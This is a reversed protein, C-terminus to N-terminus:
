RAIRLTTLSRAIGGFAEALAAGDAADFYYSPNTACDRLLEKVAPDSVAFAITYIKIHEKENAGSNKINTCLEATLNNGPTSDVTGASSDYTSVHEPYTPKMTNKGDTMLVIAKVLGKKSMQSYAKGSNLPAPKSLMRWAWMLGAPIYTDYAGTMADIESDITSKNDTLEMIPRACHTNMLGTVRVNPNRDEVNLPYNRSGVCGYWKTETFSEYQGIVEYDYDCGWYTYTSSVGDNTTTGTRNGCNKESGPVVGYQDVMGNSVKTDAPVDIWPANRNGMGVNVYNSFPVLGVRLDTGSGKKDFLETILDHAASKLSALKGSDNMSGTNDLALVLELNGFDRAVVSKAKIKLKSSGVLNMFSTKYKGKAVVKLRTDGQQNIKVHITGLDIDLVGNKILYSEVLQKLEAAETVDSAAAALTADDVAQQLVNQAKSAQMYDLAIGGAGIMPVAALGFMLAVNGGTSKLFDKFGGM